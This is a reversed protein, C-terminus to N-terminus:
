ARRLLWAVLAAQRHTGTKAFLSALQNRATTISISASESYEKLNMGNALAQALRAEAPTFGARDFKDSGAL